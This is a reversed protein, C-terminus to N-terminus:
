SPKMVVDSGYTYRHVPETHRRDGSATRRVLASGDITASEGLSTNTASADVVCRLAHEICQFPLASREWATQANRGPRM